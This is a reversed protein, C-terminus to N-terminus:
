LLLVCYYEPVVLDERSIGVYEGRSVVIGAYFLQTPSDFMQLTVM